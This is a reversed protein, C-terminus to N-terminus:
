SLIPILFAHDLKYRLICKCPIYLGMLIGMEGVKDRGDAGSVIWSGEQHSSSDM